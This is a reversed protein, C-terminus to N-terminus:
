RWKLEGVKMRESVPVYGKPTYRWFLPSTEEEKKSVAPEQASEEVKSKTGEMEPRSGASAPVVIIEKQLPVQQTAVAMKHNNNRHNNRRERLKYLLYAFVSLILTLITVALITVTLIPIIDM